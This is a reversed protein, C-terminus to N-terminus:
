KIATRRLLCRASIKGGRVGKVESDLPAIMVNVLRLWAREKAMRACCERMVRSQGGLKCFLNTGGKEERKRGEWENKEREGWERWRGRV